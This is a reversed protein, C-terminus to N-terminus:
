LDMLTFCWLSLSWGAWLRIYALRITECDSGIDQKTVGSTCLWLLIGTDTNSNWTSVCAKLIVLTVTKLSFFSFIYHKTILLTIYLLTAEWCSPAQNLALSPGKKQPTQMNSYGTFRFRSHTTIQRKTNARCYVPLRDLGATIRFQILPYIFKNKEKTWFYVAIAPVM